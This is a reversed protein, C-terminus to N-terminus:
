LDKFVFVTLKRYKYRLLINKKFLISPFL